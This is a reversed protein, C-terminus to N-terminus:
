GGANGLTGASRKQGSTQILMLRVHHSGIRLCIDRAARGDQIGVSLDVGHALVPLSLDSPGHLHQAISGAITNAVEGLLDKAERLSTAGAEKRFLHAAGHMVLKLPCVVIIGGNWRGKIAVCATVCSRGAVMPRPPVIEPFEGEFFLHWVDKAAALLQEKSVPDEIPRAFATSPM